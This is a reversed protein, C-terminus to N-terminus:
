DQQRDVTDDACGILMLILMLILMMIMMMIDIHTLTVDHAGGEGKMVGLMSTLVFIMLFRLRGFPDLFLGFCVFSAPTRGTVTHLMAITAAAM